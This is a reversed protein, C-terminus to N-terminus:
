HLVPAAAQKSAPKQQRRVPPKSAQAPKRSTKGARKSGGEGLLRATVEGVKRNVLRITEYVNGTSRNLVEKSGEAANKLLEIRALFDLPMSAVRKHIEEISSTSKDISEQVFQQLKYLTKM